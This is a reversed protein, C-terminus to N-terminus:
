QLGIRQHLGVPHMSKREISLPGDAGWIAYHTCQAFAHQLLMLICRMLASSISPSSIKQTSTSTQLCHRQTVTYAPLQVFQNSKCTPHHSLFSSLSLVACSAVMGECGGIVRHIVANQHCENPVCHHLCVPPCRLCRVGNVMAARDQPAMSHDQGRYLSAAVLFYTRARM